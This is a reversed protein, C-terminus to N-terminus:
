RSRTTSSIAEQRRELEAPDGGGGRERLDDMSIADDVDGSPDIAIITELDPLREAVARIKAIQSADECVVAKAGSNGVFGSASRPPTPRTSRCWSQAPRTIGFDAYTWEPRTQCLICVRDGPAIGIDVLGLAIERAIDAVERFSVDQWTGDIKQRVAPADGFKEAALPLLDAITRSGTAVDSAPVTSAEM